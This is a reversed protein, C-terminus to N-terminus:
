PDDRSVVSADRGRTVARGDPDRGPPHEGQHRQARTRHGTVASPESVLELIIEDSCIGFLQGLRRMQSVQPM